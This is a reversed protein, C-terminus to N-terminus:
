RSADTMVNRAVADPMVINPSPEAKQPIAIPLTAQTMRWAFRDAARQGSARRQKSARQWPRLAPAGRQRRAGPLPRAPTPWNPKWRAFRTRCSNWGATMERGEADVARREAAIAEREAAIRVRETEMAAVERSLAQAKAEGLQLAKEAERKRTGLIQRQIDSDAWVASQRSLRAYIDEAQGQSRQRFVRWLGHQYSMAVYFVMQDDALLLRTNYDGNSTARLEHVTGADLQQELEARLGQFMAADTESLQAPAAPPATM